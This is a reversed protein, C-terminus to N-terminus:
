TCGTSTMQLSHHAFKCIIPKHLASFYIGRSLRILLVWVFTGATRWMWTMKTTADGKWSMWDCLIFYLCFPVEFSLFPWDNPCLAHNRAMCKLRQQSELMELHSTKHSSTLCRTCFSKPTALGHMMMSEVSDVLWIHYIRLNIVQWKFVAWCTEPMRMRMM